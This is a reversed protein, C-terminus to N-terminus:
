PRTPWRAEVQERNAMDTRMVSAEGGAERVRAATAAAGAENIDALVVRAGARGFLLSAEEGFGSAAGTIVAVRGELSITQALQPDFAV